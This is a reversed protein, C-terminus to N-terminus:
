YGAWAKLQQMNGIFSATANHVYGDPWTERIHVIPIYNGNELKVLGQSADFWDHQMIWFLQNPTFGMEIEKALLRGLVSYTYWHHSPCDLSIKEWKLSEKKFLIPM